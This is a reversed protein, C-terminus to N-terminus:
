CQMSMFVYVQEAGPLLFTDAGAPLPSPRSPLQDSREAFGTPGILDVAELKKCVEQKRALSQCFAATSSMPAEFASHGFSTDFYWDVALLLLLPLFRSAMPWM